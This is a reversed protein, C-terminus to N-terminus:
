RDSPNTEKTAAAALELQASALLGHSAIRMGLKRALRAIPANHPLFHMWLRRMGRHAAQAVAGELLARGIGRNRHAPLVSIGLEVDNGDFAAHVVGALECTAADRVALVADRGFDIGDVYAAIRPSSVPSGFRLYRDQPSLAALHRAVLARASAGVREVLYRLGATPAM